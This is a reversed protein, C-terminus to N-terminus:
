GILWGFPYAKLCDSLRGVLHGILGGIQRDALRSVPWGTQWDILRDAMGNMLHGVLCVALQGDPLRVIAWGVM